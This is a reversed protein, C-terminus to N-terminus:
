VRSKQMKFNLLVITHSRGEHTYTRTVRNPTVVTYGSREFFTRATLSAYVTFTSVSREIVAEAQALLASGIGEGQRHAAVFLRDILGAQPKCDVFGTLAGNDDIAVFAAKGTFSDLWMDPTVDEERLWAAVEEESYDRRNVTKVTHRFLALTPEADAPLFPHILMSQFAFPLSSVSGNQSIM